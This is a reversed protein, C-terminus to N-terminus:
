HMAIATPMFKLKCCAGLEPNGGLIIDTGRGAMSTSITVASKRGAQAIVLAEARHNKANLVSHPVRREKLWHSLQESEQVSTTGVLVPQGIARRDLIEQVVAAHKEELTEFVVDQYDRRIMPRHTPIVQVDRGYTQM